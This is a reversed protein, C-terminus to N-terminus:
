VPVQYTLQQLSVRAGEAIYNQLGLEASMGSVVPAGEADRIIFTLPQGGASAYGVPNVVAKITGASPATFEGLKMTVLLKGLQDAVDIRGGDFRFRMIEAQANAILPDLRM